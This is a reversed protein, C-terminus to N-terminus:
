WTRAHRETQASRRSAAAQVRLPPQAIALMCALQTPEHSHCCAARAFSALWLLSSSCEHSASGCQASCQALLAGPDSSRLPDVKIRLWVKAVEGSGGEAGESTGAAVEAGVEAESGGTGVSEHAEGQGEEELKVEVDVTYDKDLAPLPIRASGMVDGSAPAGDFVRVLLSPEQTVGDFSRRPWLTFTEDFTPTFSLQQVKTCAYSSNCTVQV